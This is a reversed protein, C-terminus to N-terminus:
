SVLRNFFNRYRKIMQRLDETSIDSEQKWDKELTRKENNIMATTKEVMESVFAEAQQVAERPNDVFRGQIEEWQTQMRTSEDPRFWTMHTMKEDVDVPMLSAPAYSKVERDEIRSENTNNEMGDGKPNSQNDDKPQIEPPPIVPFVEASIDLEEEPIDEEEREYFKDPTPHQSGFYQQTM